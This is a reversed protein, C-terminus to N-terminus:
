DTGVHLPHITSNLHRTARPLDEAQGAGDTLCKCDAILPKFPAEALSRRRLQLAFDFRISGARAAPLRRPCPGALFFCESKSAEEAGLVQAATTGISPM